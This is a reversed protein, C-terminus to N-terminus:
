KTAASIEKWAQKAGPKFGCASPDFVKGNWEIGKRTVWHCLSVAQCAAETKLANCKGDFSTPTAPSQALAVPAFIANIAIVTAFRTMTLGGPTPPKIAADVHMLRFM